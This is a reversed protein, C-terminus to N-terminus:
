KMSQKWENDIKVYTAVTERWDNDVKVSMTEIERYENDIKCKGDIVPIDLFEIIFMGEGLNAGNEGDQELALPSVYSTASRTRTGNWYGGGGGGLGDDTNGGGGGFGAYSTGNRTYNTTAGQAGILFSKGAYTSNFYNNYSGGSYNENNIHSTVDSIYLGHYVATGNAYRLDQGGNGGAGVVLPKVKWENGVGIGTFTDDLENDTKLVAFTGGGGAGTVGDSTTSSADTGAQGVCVLIKDGQKFEFVGSARAGKGVKEDTCQNGKGGRAGYANLRAKCNFPFTYALMTGKYKISTTTNTINFLISDNVNIENPITVETSGIQNYTHRLPIKDGLYTIICVGNGEQGIQTDGTPSSMSSSGDQSVGDFLHYESTPTYGEPKYSDSTLIYGSGGGGGKGDADSDSDYAGGGGYWGGGGAGASYGQSLSGGVGFSGYHATINNWTTGGATQTGGTGNRNLSTYGDGGSLGGGYGGGYYGAGGGGGAVIIRSYLSNKDLRIDTAGGGGKGNTRGNGGGNWGGDVTTTTGGVNCYLTINRNLIVIGKSYGGKGGVYSTSYSGGSAGWVELQYAGEELTVEQVDGTYDFRFKEGIEM